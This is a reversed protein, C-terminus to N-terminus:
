LIALSWHVSCLWQIGAYTIPLQHNKSAYHGVSWLYSVDSYLLLGNGYLKCDLFYVILSAWSINVWDSIFIWYSCINSCPSVDNCCFRKQPNGLCHSCFHQLYLIWVPVHLFTEILVQSVSILMYMLAFFLFDSWELSYTLHNWVFIGPLTESNRNIYRFDIFDSGNTTHSSSCLVQHESCWTMLCHVFFLM